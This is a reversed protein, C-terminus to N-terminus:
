RNPIGRAGITITVTGNPSNPAGHGLLLGIVKELDKNCSIACEADPNLDGRGILDTNYSLDM